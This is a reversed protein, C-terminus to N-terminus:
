PPTHEKLQQRGLVFGTPSGDLRGLVRRLDRTLIRLEALTPEIQQLGGQAFSNLPARNEAILANANQSASELQGLTRDLKAVLGPLEQVLNADLRALTGNASDLTQKLGDSAERANVILVGIDQKQAAVAGTMAEINELSHSVRAINADSLMLDMRTVLKSATDAINQLASPTTQIVPLQKPDASVLAPSGPSGGTLQIFASGTLGDQSLRARTDARIPTTEQLRVEALVKRPDDPALGLEVVTGVTIGNYRVNGGRSLGTVPENFVIRYRRWDRESSYNAAWLAFLLALVTVVVTFAGILVFNAKTEM